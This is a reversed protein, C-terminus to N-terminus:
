RCMIEKNPREDGEGERPYQLSRMKPLRIGPFCKKQCCNRVFQFLIFFCYEIHRHQVHSTLPIAVQGVEDLTHNNCGSCRLCIPRSFCFSKCLLHASPRSEAPRPTNREIPFRETDLYCCRSAHCQFVRQSSDPTPSRVTDNETLVSVLLRAEGVHQCRYCAFLGCLVPVTLTGAM